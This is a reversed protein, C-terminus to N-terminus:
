NLEKKNASYSKSRPLPMKNLQALLEVLQGHLIVLNNAYCKAVDRINDLDGQIGREEMNILASCVDLAASAAPTSAEVIDILKKLQYADM